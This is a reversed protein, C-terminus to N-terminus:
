PARNQPWVVARRAVREVKARAASGDLLNEAEADHAEAPRGGAAVPVPDQGVPALEQLPSRLSLAATARSSARPARPALAAIEPSPDLELPKTGCIMQLAIGSHPEGTQEIPGRLELPEVSGPRKGTAALSLEDHEPAPAPHSLGKEEGVEDPALAGDEETGRLLRLRHLQRPQGLSHPAIEPIALGIEGAPREVTPFGGRPEERGEGRGLGEDHNQVLHGIESPRRRPEGADDLGDPVM